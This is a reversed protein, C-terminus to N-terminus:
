KAGGNKAELAAKALGLHEQQFGDTQPGQKVIMKLQNETFDAWKQGKKPGVPMVGYDIERPTTDTNAPTDVAEVDIVKPPQATPALSAPADTVTLAAVDIAKARDSPADLEEPTYTGAVVTPDMTRVGDSVARAWLMQMRARPTAWNTKIKGGSGFVFPEHQAEAWTLSFQQTDGDVTIEIIAAESDRKVVKYKGGNKKLGALMADARMSLKGDIMHYERMIQIPNKRESMCALALVQGQEVSKCGFMGSKALWEGMKACAEMPDNIKSYLEIDNSM